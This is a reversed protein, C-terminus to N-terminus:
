PILISIGEIYNITFHIKVLDSGQKVRLILSIIRISLDTSAPKYSESLNKDSVM